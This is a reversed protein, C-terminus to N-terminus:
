YMKAKLSSRLLVQQIQDALTRILDACLGDQLTREAPLCRKDIEIGIEVCSQKAGEKFDAYVLKWVKAPVRQVVRTKRRSYDAFHKHYSHVMIALSETSIQKSLIVMNTGPQSVNGSTPQAIRAKKVLPQEQEVTRSLAAEMVEDVGDELLEAM